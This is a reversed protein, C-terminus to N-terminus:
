RMVPPLRTLIIMNIMKLQTPKQPPCKKALVKSQVNQLTPGKCIPIAVSPLRKNKAMPKQNLKNVGLGVLM